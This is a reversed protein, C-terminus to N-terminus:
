AFLSKIFKKKFQKINQKIFAYNAWVLDSKDFYNFPCTEMIWNNMSDSTRCLHMYTFVKNYYSPLIKFRDYDVKYLLIINNNIIKYRISDSTSFEKYLIEQDDMMNMTSEFLIRSAAEPISEEKEFEGYFGSYLGVDTKNQKNNYEKGVLIFIEDSENPKGYVIVSVFQINNEIKIKKWNNM